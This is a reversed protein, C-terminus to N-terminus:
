RILTIYFGIYRIQHEFNNFDYCLHIPIVIELIKLKNM